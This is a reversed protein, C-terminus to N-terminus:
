SSGSRPTGPRATGPPPRASTSRSSYTGLDHVDSAARIAPGPDRLVCRERGLRLQGARHDLPRHRRAQREGPEGRILRIAVVARQTFAQFVAYERDRAIVADRRSGPLHDAGAGLARADSGNGACAGALNSVPRGTLRAAPGPRPRHCSHGPVRALGDIQGDRARLVGVFPASAGHGTTTVTGTLEYEVVIVESRRHRPDSIERCEEFRVPLAHGSPGPSRSSSRGGRSAARCTRRPSRRGRHCRRRRAPQGDSPGRQKRAVARKM